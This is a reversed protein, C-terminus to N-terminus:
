YDMGVTNRDGTFAMRVNRIIPRRSGDIPVGEFFPYVAVNREDVGPAILYRGDPSWYTEYPPTPEGSKQRVATHFSGDPLRGWSYYPVGDTTLQRQDGTAATAAAYDAPTPNAEAAPLAGVSM